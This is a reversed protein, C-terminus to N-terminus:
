AENRQKQRLRVVNQASEESRRSYRSASQETSWGGAAKLDKMTLGTIADAETAGGARMDMSWVDDPVGAARAIKRFMSAYNRAVWPLGTVESVIVPGVREAEPTRQLLDLLLPTVTLDFARRKKSTKNQFYVIQWDPTIGQRTGDIVSDWVWGAKWAKKEGEGEWKGIISVRRETFEFQALTTIAISLFGKALAMNVIAIVQEFTPASERASGAQFTIVDKEFLNVVDIAQKHGVFLGFKAVRRIQGMVGRAKVLLPKDAGNPPTKFENYWRVLDAGTTTGILREGVTQEIVNCFYDYQRRTQDGVTHYRSEADTRYRGVAWRWTGPTPLGDLGKRWLLLQEQHKRCLAAAETETGQVTLGKIPYGAKLDAQPPLWYLAEGAKRPRRKLGPAYLPHGEPWAGSAKDLM